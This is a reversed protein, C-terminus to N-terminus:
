SLLVPQHGDIASISDTDIFFNLLLEPVTKLSNEQILGRIHDIARFGAFQM